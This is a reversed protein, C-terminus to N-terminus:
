KGAESLDAAIKMLNEAAIKACTCVCATCIHAGDNGAILIATDHKCIGCFSCHPGECVPPGSMEQLAERITEMVTPHPKFWEGQLRWEALAAHLERERATTGHIAGILKLVSPNGTQLQNLRAAPDSATFGIKIPGDDDAQIFYVFQDSM